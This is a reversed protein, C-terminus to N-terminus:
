SVNQKRVGILQSSIQWLKQWVETMFKMIICCFQEELNVDETKTGEFLFRYEAMQLVSWKCNQPDYFLM